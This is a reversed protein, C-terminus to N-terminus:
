HDTSSGRGNQRSRGQSPSETAAVPSAMEWRIGCGTGDAFFHILTPHQCGNLCHIASRLRGKGDAGNPRLPDDIRPPWDEEQFASLIQIQNTARIDLRKVLTGQVWLEFLDSDYFVPQPDDDVATSKQASQGNTRQDM